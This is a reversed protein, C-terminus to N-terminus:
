NEDDLFSEKYVIVNPHRLSAIVRIENLSNIKEKATLKDVKIKKLAYM